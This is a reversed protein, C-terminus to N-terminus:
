VNVENPKNPGSLQYEHKNNHEVENYSYNCFSVFVNVLLGLLECLLMFSLEILLLIGNKSAKPLFLVITDENKTGKLLWDVVTDVLNDLINFCHLLM